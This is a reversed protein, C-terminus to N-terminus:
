TKSIAQWFNLGLLEEPRIYLANFDAASTPETAPGNKSPRGCGRNTKELVAEGDDPFKNREDNDNHHESESESESDSRASKELQRQTKRSTVDRDFGTLLM